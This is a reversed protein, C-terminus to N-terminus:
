GELFPMLFFNTLLKKRCHPNKKALIEIFQPYPHNNDFAGRIANITPSYTGDSDMEEAIKLLKRWAKQSLKGRMRLLINSVQNIVTEEAHDVIANKKETLSEVLHNSSM